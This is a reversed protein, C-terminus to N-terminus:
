RKVRARPEDDEHRMKHWKDETVVAKSIAEQSVRNNVTDMLEGKVADSVMDRDMSDIAQMVDRTVGGDGVPILELHDGHERVEFGMAHLAVYSLIM